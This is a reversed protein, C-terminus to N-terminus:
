VRRSRQSHDGEWDLGAFACVGPSSNVLEITTHLNRSQIPVRFTGSDPLGDEQDFTYTYPDRGQLTVEVDFGTTDHYLVDLYRIITRGRTEPIGDRRYFLRSLEYRFEYDVGIFVSAASLDGQGTVAIQNAAPRSTALVSLPSRRVVMLTGESGDTDVEFPLTWTTTDTGVSYAASVGTTQDTVRRDLYQAGEDTSVADLGVNLDITSLYGGDDHVQVLGLKGDICDLGVIQGAAFNWRSWSSQVREQGNFLYSYVYLSLGDDDTLLALQGLSADGALALPSGEVYKPLDATIDVAELKLGNDSETAYFELVQTFGGKGRTSYLRSGAVVPRHAPSNPYKSLCDIRITTPTLVPDGTVEWQANESFLILRKDWLVASHFLSVEAHSSRVDITDDALLAAASYRFFNFLDGASSFVINEECTFGLRNQYFLVDSITKELFSPFPVIELDGAGRENWPCPEFVFYRGTGIVSCIDGPSFANDVGGALEDVTITTATNSTIIGTSGDTHNKLVLGAHEDEVMSLDPNSFVTAPDLVASVSIDPYADTTVNAVRVVNATVSATFDADADILAQVAAAVTAGSEPSDGVVHVFDDGDVTVTITCSAPYLEEDSFTIDRIASGFVTVNGPSLYARRYQDPTVGAGYSLKLEIEDGSSFAIPVDFAGFGVGGGKAPRSYTEGEVPATLLARSLGFNHINSGLPADNRYLTVTVDHGPAVLSTDIRYNLFLRSADSLLTLLVGSDHDRIEPTTGAPVATGSPTLSDWPLTDAGVTIGAVVDTVTADPGSLFTHEKKEVVTGHRVLRHPLTSPDLNVPTGPKPCERWVGDQDPNDSDDFKVWYNDSVSELNGVVEVIFGNPAKRPLDIFAQISGKVAKLGKDALGDFVSITFDKSDARSIHITSGLQTFTFDDLLPEAELATILDTAIQDTSITQRAEPASAAVTLIAVPIDNITVQYTTAYDAQRVYVLADLAQAPAKEDGQAVEVGRNVIITTDGATAARFGDGEADTLYATGGPALVTVETFALADYVKIEGNAIVVHYRESEDRNITHVFASAWGTITSALKGLYVLPPRMMLGRVVSSFGNTQAGAQSPHRQEQPRQSVGNLVNTIQQSILM